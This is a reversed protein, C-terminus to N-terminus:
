AWIPGHAATPQHDQTERLAEADAAFPAAGHQHRDLVAGGIARIRHFSAESRRAPRVAGTWRPTRRNARRGSILEQRPSPADREQQADQEDADAQDDPQPNQLRRRERADLLGARLRPPRDDLDQVRVPLLHQERHARPEGLVAGEVDVRHEDQDVSRLFHPM